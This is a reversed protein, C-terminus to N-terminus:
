REDHYRLIIKQISAMSIFYEKSLQAIADDYKMMNKRMSRFKNRIELNRIKTPSAIGLSLADAIIKKVEKKNKGM